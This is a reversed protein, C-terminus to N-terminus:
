ATSSRIGPSASFRWLHPRYTRISGRGTTAFPGAKLAGPLGAADMSYYRLTFEEGASPGPDTSNISDLYYGNWCVSSIVGISTSRIGEQCALGAASDSIVGTVSNVGHSLFDSIQCGAGSACPLGHSFRGVASPDGSQGLEGPDHSASSQTLVTTTLLSLSFALEKM